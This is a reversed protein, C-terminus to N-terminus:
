ITLENEQQMEIGRKVVLSLVLLIIGLFLWVDAGGMFLTENDPIEIKMATLHKLYRTGWAAFFSIGLALYAMNALLKQLHINFPKEIDFRKETFLKLVIYFLLAKLVAVILMHIMLVIFDGPAVDVLQDLFFYQAAKPQYSVAYIVNFLISGAQICLGIFVIWTLGKFIQLLTQTSIKIEM